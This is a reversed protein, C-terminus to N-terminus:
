ILLIIIDFEEGGPQSSIQATYFEARNEVWVSVCDTLIICCWRGQLALDRWQGRGWEFTSDWRQRLFSGCHETVSGRDAMLCCFKIAKESLLSLVACFLPYSCKILWMKDITVIEMTQQCSSNYTDVIHEEINEKMNSYLIVTHWRGKEM